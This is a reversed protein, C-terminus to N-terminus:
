IIFTSYKIWDLTMTWVTKVIQSFVSGDFAAPFRSVFLLVVSLYLTPFLLYFCRFCLVLCFLPSFPLCRCAPCKREDGMLTRSDFFRSHACVHGPAHPCVLPAWRRLSWKGFASMLSSSHPRLTPTVREHTWMRRTAYRCVTANNEVHRVSRLSPFHGAPRKGGDIWLTRCTLFLTITHLCAVQLVHVCSRSVGVIRGSEEESM